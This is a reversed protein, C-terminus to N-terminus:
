DNNDGGSILLSVDTSLCGCVKVITSFKFDGSNIINQLTPYSIDSQSALEKANIGQRFMEIKIKEGINNKM